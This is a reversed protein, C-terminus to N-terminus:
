VTVKTRQVDIPPSYMGHKCQGQTTLLTSHPRHGQGLMLSCCPSLLSVMIQLWLAPTAHPWAPMYTTNTLLYLNQMFRWCGRCIDCRCVGVCAGCKACTVSLTRLSGVHGFMTWRLDQITRVAGRHRCYDPFSGSPLTQTSCRSSSFLAWRAWQMAHGTRARVCALILFPPRTVAAARIHPLFCKFLGRTTSPSPLVVQAFSSTLVTAARVLDIELASDLDIARCNADNAAKVFSSTISRAQARMIHGHAVHPRSEPAHQRRMESGFWAQWCFLM